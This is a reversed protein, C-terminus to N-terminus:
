PTEGEDEDRERTCFEALRRAAAAIDARHSRLIAPVEGIEVSEAAIRDGEGFHRVWWVGSYATEFVETRGASEIRAEVEGHGVADALEARDARTLPMATLELAAVAGTQAFLALRAAIESLVAQAMGTREPRPADSPPALGSNRVPGAFGALQTM